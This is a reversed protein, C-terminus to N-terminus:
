SRLKTGALTRKAAIASTAHWAKGTPMAKKPAATTSSSSRTM